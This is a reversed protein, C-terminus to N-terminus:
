MSEAYTSDLDGNGYTFAVTVPKAFKQGDPTLRYAMGFGAADTNEIPQVGITTDVTLAGAPVTVTIRKDASAIIGGAAGINASVADGAIAGVPSPKPPKNPQSHGPVCGSLVLMLMMAVVIARRMAM